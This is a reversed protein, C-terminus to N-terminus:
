FHRGGGGGHSTGSSSHHTGGGSRGGGSYSSSSPEPKRTKTVATRIYNERVNRIHTSGPVLYAGATSATAVTKNAAKKIAAIISIVLFIGLLWLFAMGFSMPYHKYKELFITKRVFKEAAGNFSDGGLASKVYNSLVTLHNGSFLKQAEGAVFIKYAARGGESYLYLAVGSRQSGEGYGMYNYYRKVYEEPFYYLTADEDVLVLIDTDYKDRAEAIMDELESKVSDKLVGKPDVVRDADPRLVIDEPRIGNFTDSGASLKRAVSNVYEEIGDGYAGDAFSDLMRDYIQEIYDNPISDICSGCTSITYYRVNPDMNVFLIIGDRDPGEGFGGYDYFDDNFVESDKGDANPATLVIIDIGFTDRIDQLRKRIDKARDETLLGSFDLLRDTHNNHFPKFYESNMMDTRLEKATVTPDINKYLRNVFDLCADYHNGLGAYYETVLQAKFVEWTSFISSAGFFVVHCQRAEKEYIMFLVTRDKGYGVPYDKAEYYYEAFEDASAFGLKELSNLFCVQLDCKSAEMFEFVYMCLEKREEASLTETLDIVRNYYYYEGNESLGAKLEGSDGDDAAAIGAFGFLMSGLLLLCIFLKKM